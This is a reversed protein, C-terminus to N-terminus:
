KNLFYDKFFLLAKTRDNTGIKTYISSLYNKVTGQTLYLSNAIEKSSLGKMLAQAIEIERETLVYTEKLGQTDVMLEKKTAITAALKQAVKGTLLLNGQMAEFISHILREGDIDKLLYGNAGFRLADIIFVDDDFTTLILIVVDPYLAKIQQTAKVGGMGPMQIDMLILDPHHTQLLELASEGSQATAVVQILDSTSILSRLGELMLQQDDVLMVQIKNM